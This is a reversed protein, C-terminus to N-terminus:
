QNKLLEESLRLIESAAKEKEKALTKQYVPYAVAVLLMGLIGVGIGLIPKLSGLVNGFETMFLSMGTGLILAGLIGIILAKTTAKNTVAEDLKRLSEMKSEEKKIYKDRIKQVEEQQTASYTMTFTEQEKM